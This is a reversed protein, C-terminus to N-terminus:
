RWTRARGAAESSRMPGAPWGTASRWCAASRTARRRPDGRAGPDDLRRDHRRGGGAHLPRGPELLPGEIRRALGHPKAEKRVFFAKVDAGGALAACAIPDAGMTMGGVATAAWAAPRSPSWSAWRRSAPPCCSRGSPTSWTSPPAGSTLVVEGIVLAHERLEHCSGTRARSMLGTVHLLRRGCDGYTLWNFVCIADIIPLRMCGHSAPYDPAPDYGHIAYGSIFFDPTTCGTRCTARFGRLLCPLPGPDDADVAQGLQDPLDPVVKSGNILALVQKRSDGEAHAGDGPYRVKFSASATSCPASRAGDLSQNGDGRGLLRHYADLRWGPRSTTSAQRRCTSTCRRWGSSSWSWSRAGRASAPTEALAAVPGSPSSAWCRRRARTPSRSGCSGRRPARSSRSSAATAAQPPHSSVAPSRDQVAPASTRSVDVTQGAVYPRVVGQVQVAREPVTVAGATSSSSAPRSVAQGDGQRARPRRPPHPRPPHPRPRRPRPRRRRTAATTASSAATTTASSTAATTASPQRRDLGNRGHPSGDAVAVGALLGLSAIAAALAATCSALHRRM